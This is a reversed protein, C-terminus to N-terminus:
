KLTVGTSEVHCISLRNKQAAPICSCVFSGIHIFKTWLSHSFWETMLDPTSDLKQALYLHYFAETHKGTLWITCKFADKEVMIM